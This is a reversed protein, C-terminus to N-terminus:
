RRDDVYRYARKPEQAEDDTLNPRQREKAQAEALM